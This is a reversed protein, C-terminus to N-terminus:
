RRRRTAVTGRDRAAGLQAVATGMGRSRRVVTWGFQSLACRLLASRGIRRPGGATFARWCMRACFGNRALDWLGALRQGTAALLWYHASGTTGPASLFLVCASALRRSFCAPSQRNAVLAGAPLLRTGIGSRWRPQDWRARWVSSHRLELAVSGCHAPSAQGTRGPRNESSRLEGLVAVSRRGVLLGWVGIGEYGPVHWTSILWLMPATGLLVLCTLPLLRYMWTIM